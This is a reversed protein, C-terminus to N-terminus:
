VLHSYFSKGTATASRKKKTGFTVLSQTKAKVANMPLLKSYGGEQVVDAGLSSCDRVYGNHMSQNMGGGEYDIGKFQNIAFFCLGEFM